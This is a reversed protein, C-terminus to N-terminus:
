GGKEDGAAGIDSSMERVWVEQRPYPLAVGERECTALVHERLKRAVGWQKGPQTKVMVRATYAWDGLSLPVLVQPTELLENAFAPDEAFEEVAAELVGTVWEMDQEYAVGIDVIARSWDRTQNAIIRVEGNPVVHLSGNVDRISTARLTLREVQGVVEGVQITDGVVYQNEVLILMGGILDKFLTQAGLSVALGAVGAGALVPTIDLGFASLLMLLAAGVILVGTLWRLIQVFTLVQQRQVKRLRKMSQTIRAVRRGVLQTIALGLVCVVVIVLSSIVPWATYDSAMKCGWLKEVWELRGRKEVGTCIGM